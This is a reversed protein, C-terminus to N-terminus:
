QETRYCTLFCVPISKFDLLIFCTIEPEGVQSDFCGATCCIYQYVAIKM